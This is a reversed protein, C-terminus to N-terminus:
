SPVTARLLAVALAAQNGHDSLASPVIRVGALSAPLAEARLVAQARPLLLDHHARGITGLAIVDPSLLDVLLALAQGLRAGIEDLAALAAADGDRAAAFLAEADAGDRLATSVGLQRHRRAEAAAVQAMGPGSLYGEVSGAKGFGVPGDRELRVHGIEGCFGRAGQLPQGRIAIGAGMGTSMTLFVAIEVGRAAGWLCEAAVLANADNMARAPWPANADLWGQLPFGQWGPMNPVELFRGEPLAFPGPCSVGLAAPEVDRRVVEARLADFARALAAEPGAEATPFRGRAVIAGGDDGLSWGIKTGGIDVGALTQAM